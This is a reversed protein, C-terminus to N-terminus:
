KNTFLGDGEKRKRVDLVLAREVRLGSRSRHMSAFGYTYM